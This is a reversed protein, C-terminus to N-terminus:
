ENRTSYSTLQAMPLYPLQRDQLRLHKYQQQLFKQITCMLLHKDKLQLSLDQKDM